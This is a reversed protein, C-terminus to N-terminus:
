RILHIEVMEGAQIGNATAPVRILGDARSLTFILNSKGFIPTAELVGNENKSLKAPVWDQRGSISPVNIQLSASVTGWLSPRQNGAFKELIPTIVVRHIVWASVPNGPLGIVPKGDILAFITPKGPRINLGHLLVGPKGLRNIVRSTMDKASASSGATIVIMDALRLAEKMKEEFIIDDDPIIPYLLTEYGYAKAVKGIMVSNINRVQGPKLTKADPELVEDGSSLIAVKPKVFVEIETVGMALLAGIDVSEIRKNSPLIVENPKIDEGVQIVNEGSAVSKQIEIQDEDLTQSYEVMVVADANEPVMGGTHILLCEEAGLEQMAEDGMLIEGICTLYTPLSASAGALDKARVAFGDVTSKRFNPLAVKSLISTANIRGVSDFVSVKETRNIPQIKPLFFDLAEQPPTLKLFDPM